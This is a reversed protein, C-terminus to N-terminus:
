LTVLACSKLYIMKPEPWLLHGRSNAVGGLVGPVTEMFSVM